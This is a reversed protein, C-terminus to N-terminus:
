GEFHQQFPILDLRKPKSDGNKQTEGELGLAPWSFFSDPHLLSVM